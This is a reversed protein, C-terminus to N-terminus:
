HTLQLALGEHTGHSRYAVRRYDTGNNSVGQGIIRPPVTYLFHLCKSRFFPTFKSQVPLKFVKWASLWIIPSAITQWHSHPYHDSPQPGPTQGRCITSPRYICRWFSGEILAYALEAVSTCLILFMESWTFVQMRYFRYAKM